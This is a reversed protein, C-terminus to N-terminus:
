IINSAKSSPKTKESITDDVIFYIPKGTEKSKSWILDLVLSRFSRFLLSENWNSQSLFRTISTRHNQSAFHAVDSVKGNFGTLIMASMISKLHKYQPKTLYLDINLKNLFNDLSLENPIISNQFM